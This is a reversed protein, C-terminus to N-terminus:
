FAESNRGCGTNNIQKHTLMKMSINNIEPFKAQYRDLEM